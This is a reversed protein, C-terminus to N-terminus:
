ATHSHITALFVTPHFVWIRRIPDISGDLRTAALAALSKGSKIYLTYTDGSNWRGAEKIQYDEAGCRAAWVAASKRISHTTAGSVQAGYFIMKCIDSWNDYSLNVENSDNDTWMKYNISGGRKQYDNERSPHM